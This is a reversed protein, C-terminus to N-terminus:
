LNDCTLEDFKQGALSAGEVTLATITFHFPRPAVVSWGRLPLSCLSVSRYKSAIDACYSNTPLKMFHTEMALSGCMLRLDGHVIGLSPQLPTFSMV